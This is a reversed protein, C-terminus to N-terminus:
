GGLDKKMAQYEERTIEGSAYRRDLIKQATEESRDHADDRRFCYSSGRFALAALLILLVLPFIWMWGCGYGWGWDAYPHM